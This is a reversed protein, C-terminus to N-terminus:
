QSGGKKGGESREKETFKHAHGSAQAAYGGKQGLEQYNAGEAKRAEGGKHAVRERTEESASALGKKSNNTM